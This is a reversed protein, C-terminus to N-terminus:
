IKLTGLSEECNKIRISIKAITESTDVYTLKKLGLLNERTVPLMFGFTEPISLFAFFLGFPLYIFIPSTGLSKCLIRYFEKTTIKESSALPMLGSLNKEICKDIALALDAIHITQMPQKGGSILPIFRGKQLYNRMQKFLGGDGLVLGLRLILDNPKKFLSECVFKQKGYISLADEKSSVSSIFINKKIACQQSMKLLRETGEVNVEFADHRLEIKAFACHIFYEAGEFAAQPVPESLEYTFYNVGTIPKEPQKHVLANTQWGKQAFYNCLYSGVFGNAGTIVVKSM